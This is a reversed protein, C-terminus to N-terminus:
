CKINFYLKKFLLLLLLFPSVYSTSNNYCIFKYSFHKYTSVKYFQKITPNFLPFTTYKYSM